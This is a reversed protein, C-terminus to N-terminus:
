YSMKACKKLHWMDLKTFKLYNQVFHYWNQRTIGGHLTHHFFDARIQEVLGKTESIAMNTSFPSTLSSSVLKYSIQKEKELLWLYMSCQSGRYTDYILCTLLLRSFWLLDTIHSLLITLDIDIKIPVLLYWISFNSNYRQLIYESERLGVHLHM